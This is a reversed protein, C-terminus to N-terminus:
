VLVAVRLRVDEVPLDFQALEHDQAKKVPRMTRQSGIRGVAGLAQKCSAIDPVEVSAAM